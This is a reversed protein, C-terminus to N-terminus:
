NTCHKGIDTSTGYCELTGNAISLPTALL